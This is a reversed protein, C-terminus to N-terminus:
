RATGCTREVTSSPTAANPSAVDQLLSTINLATSLDIGKQASCVSCVDVAREEAGEMQKLHITAERENCLECLM